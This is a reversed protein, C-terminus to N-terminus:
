SEQAVPVALVVLAPLTVAVVAVAAVIQRPLVQRQTTQPAAVQTLEVPEERVAAAEVAAAAVTPFQLELPSRARPQAAVMEVALVRALHVLPRRAAAAAVVTLVQPLRPLEATM